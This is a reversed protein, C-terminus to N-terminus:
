LHQSCLVITAHLISFCIQVSVVAVSCSFVYHYVFGLSKDCMADTKQIISFFLVFLNCQYLAQHIAVRFCTESVYFDIQGVLCICIDKSYLFVFIVTTTYRNAKEIDKNAIFSFKQLCM